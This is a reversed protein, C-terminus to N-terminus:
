QKIQRAVVLIFEDISPKGNPFLKRQSERATPDPNNWTADITSQMERAVDDVSVGNQAAIQELLGDLQKKDMGM